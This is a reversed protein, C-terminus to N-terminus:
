LPVLRFPTEKPYLSAFQWIPKGQRPLAVLSRSVTGFGWDTEVTMAGNPDRVGPATETSEFLERWASWDGAEPKPTPVARFRPLYYNTRESMETDNLDWATLMGVGEPLPRCEIAGDGLGRLWFGQERDAVAMNFSRYAGANVRTLAAAAAGAASHDLAMLVLEGRTRKGSQSGLSGRRNLIAAVVGDDNLGLWSGGAEHDRGAVVGPREPWHRGPPSWPRGRMEDRNAALLLPWEHGPRRLTVVTCM